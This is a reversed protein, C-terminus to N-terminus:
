DMHKRALMASLSAFLLRYNANEDGYAQLTSYTGNEYYIILTSKGNKVNFRETKESTQPMPLELSMNEISKCVSEFLETQQARTETVAMGETAMPAYLDIEEGTFSAIQIDTATFYCVTEPPTRYLIACIPSQVVTSKEATEAYKETQESTPLVTTTSNGEKMEGCATLFLLCSVFLIVVMFRLSKMM